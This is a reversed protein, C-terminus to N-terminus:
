LSIPNNICKRISFCEKHELIPLIKGGRAFVAQDLDGITKHQWQGYESADVQKKTYYNYWIESKEAGGQKPLYYDVPWEGQKTQATIKPSVLLSDGMM